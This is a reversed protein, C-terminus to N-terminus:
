AEREFRAVHWTNHTLNQFLEFTGEACRVRFYHRQVRGGWQRTGTTWCREVAYVDYRHGRWMFTRPFYGFRRSQMDIAEIRRLRPAAERAPKNGFLLIGM